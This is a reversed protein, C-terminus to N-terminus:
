KDLDAICDPHISDETYGFETHLYNCPVMLIEVYQFESNNEGGHIVLDEPQDLCFMGRKPDDRVKSLQDEIGNAPEYFEKWDEETCLHYPIVKQFM